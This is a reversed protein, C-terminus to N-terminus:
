NHNTHYKHLLYYHIHPNHQCELRLTKLLYNHLIHAEQVPIDCKFLFSSIDKNLEGILKKFLEFAEFKYILLPDKQELQEMLNDWDIKLHHNTLEVLWMIFPHETNSTNNKIYNCLYKIDKWSAYPEAQDKSLMMTEFIYYAFEPRKNWWELLMMYTLDREGKGNLDRVNMTLKALLLLKDIDETLLLLNFKQRLDTVDKTRVLQFNNLYHQM